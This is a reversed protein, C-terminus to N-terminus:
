YEYYCELEYMTDYFNETEVDDVYYDVARYVITENEAVLPVKPSLSKEPIIQETTNNHILEPAEALHNADLTIISDEPLQIEEHVYFHEETNRNLFIFCSLAVIIAISAAVSIASIWQKRTKHQKEEKEIRQMVEHQFQEFFHEPVEYLPKEKYKQLTDM